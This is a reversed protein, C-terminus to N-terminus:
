KRNMRDMMAVIDDDDDDDDDVYTNSSKSSNKMSSRKNSHRDDESKSFQNMVHSLREDRDRKSADFSVTKSFPDKSNYEM